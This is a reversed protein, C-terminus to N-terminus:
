ERIHHVPLNLNLTPSNECSHAPAGSQEPVPQVNPAAGSPPQEQSGAVLGSGLLLAALTKLVVTCVTMERDERNRSCILM